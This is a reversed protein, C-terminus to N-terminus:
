DHAEFFAQMKRCESLAFQNVVPNELRTDSHTVVLRPGDGKLRDLEGAHKMELLTEIMLNTMVSSDKGGSFACLARKGKLMLDRYVAKVRAVKQDLSLPESAHNGQEDVNSLPIQNSLDLPEVGAM